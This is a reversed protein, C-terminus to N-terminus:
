CAAPGRGNEDVGAAELMNDQSTSLLEDFHRLRDRLTSIERWARGVNGTDPRSLAM